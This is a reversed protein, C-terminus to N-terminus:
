GATRIRKKLIKPGLLRQPPSKRSIRMTAHEVQRRLAELDVRLFSCVTQISYLRDKGDGPDMLWRYADAYDARHKLHLTGARHDKILRLADWLMEVMLRLEPSLERYHDHFEYQALADGVFIQEPHEYRPGGHEQGDPSQPGFMRWPKREAAPKM